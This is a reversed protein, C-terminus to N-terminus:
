KKSFSLGQSDPADGIVRFTMHNPDAWNLRGVIAPMNEPILTLVGSAFTYAGAFQRTQGKADLKWHFKGGDEITLAVSSDATPHTTWTGSITAGVPMSTNTTPAAAAAAPTPTPTPTPSVGPANQQAPQLQELLKASLTDNPKLAVVQKLQKAAADVHGQTLYHYALVFRSPASQPNAKAHERLAQLQSTYVDINPYLGILTPWDWGPGSSLVAYLPTAAEDFRGLAFLCLARFEHLSADDAHLALAEDAQQLAAGADGSKLSDRASGFLALAQDATSQEPPASVTNIPQSYDFSTAVVGSAGSSAYPNSYPSYGYAYLAGADLGTPGYGYGSGGYGGGYGGYGGGYGGYGGLGAGLLLGLPFGGFGYGYGGLGYGYGGPGYAAGARGYGLGGYGAYGGYSRHYGGYGGGVNNFSPRNAM